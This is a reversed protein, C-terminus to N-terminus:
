YCCNFMVVAVYKVNIFCSCCSDTISHIKKGFIDLTTCTMLLHWRGLMVIDQAHGPFGVGATDYLMITFYCVAFSRQKTSINQM